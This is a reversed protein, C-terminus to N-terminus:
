FSLLFISFTIILTGLITLFEYTWNKLRSYKYNKIEVTKNNNQHKQYFKSSYDIKGLMVRYKEINQGNTLILDFDLKDVNILEKFYIKAIKRSINKNRDM